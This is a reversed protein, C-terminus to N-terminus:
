KLAKINKLRLFPSYSVISNIKLIAATPIKTVIKPCTSFCEPRSSCENKILRAPKIITTDQITGYM